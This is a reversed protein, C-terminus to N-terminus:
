PHACQAQSTNPSQPCSSWREHLHTIPHIWEGAGRKQATLHLLRKEWPGPCKLEGTNRRSDKHHKGLMQIQTTLFIWLFHKSMEIIIKFLLSFNLFGSNKRAKQDKSCYDGKKSHEVERCNQLLFVHLHLLWATAEEQQHASWWGLPLKKRSIPQSDEM